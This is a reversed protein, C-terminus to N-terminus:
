RSPSVSEPKAQYAASFLLNELARLSEEVPVLSTDSQLTVEGRGVTLHCGGVPRPVSPSTDGQGLPRDDVCAFPRPTDGFVAKALRDPDYRAFRHARVVTRWTRSVLEGFDPVAVDLVVLGDQAIAAVVDRRDPYFRNSVVTRLAITSQETLTGLVQAVGALYVTSARVGHRVAITHAANGLATSRLTAASPEGDPVAVRGARRLEGRWFRIARDTLDLGSRRRADAAETALDAPQAASRVPLAGRLLLGLDKVVLEIGHDDVALPSCGLVVHRVIDDVVVLAVRLPWEEVHNFARGALRVRADAAVREAEESGCRLVEVPLEGTEAIEQRVLEAVGDGLDAPLEEPRDPGILRTRLAEHRGVLATVADLALAVLVPPTDVVRALAQVSRQRMVHRQGWTLPAVLSREGSFVIKM